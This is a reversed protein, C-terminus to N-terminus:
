ISRSLTFVLREDAHYGLDRFSGSESTDHYSLDLGFGVLTTSIGVRWHFYDYGDGGDLGNGNGTTRNGELDFYGVEFGLGFNRPLVLDLSANGYHLNGDEGWFDPSYVYAVGVTPSLSVQDFTYGATGVFEWYNWEADDDDAGPYVYYNASLTYFINGLGGAYGAYYGLELDNSAEGSHWSSAWIGAFIGIPNFYDFTAQLAPNEDSFSIGRSVYDTTLYVTAGFNEEAFPSDWAFVTGATILLVALLIVTIRKKM